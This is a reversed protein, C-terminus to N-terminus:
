IVELKWSNDELILVKIELQRIQSHSMQTPKCSIGSIEGTDTMQGTASFDTLTKLQYSLDPELSFISVLPIPQFQVQFSLFALFLVRRIVLTLYMISLFKLIISKLTVRLVVANHRFNHEFLLMISSQDQCYKLGKEMVASM